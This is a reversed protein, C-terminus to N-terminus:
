SDLYEILFEAVKDLEEKVGLEDERGWDFGHGEGEVSTLRVNVGLARLQEYTRESEAPLVSNDLSGHLLYTPPFSTSMNLQPILARVAPPLLSSNQTLLIKERENMVHPADEADSVFSERTNAIAERVVQNVGPVGLIHDLATGQLMM